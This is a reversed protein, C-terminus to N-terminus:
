EDRASEQSVIQIRGLIKSTPIAGLSRSDISFPVNDGLVYVHNEPVTMPYPSRDDERRLRYEVQRGLRLETLTVRGGETRIALPCRQAVPLDPAPVGDCYRLQFRGSKKLLTSALVPADRSWFAILIRIPKQIQAKGSVSLRDVESLQRAIGANYQYDDFVGSPRNHDHVNRHRYLLWPSDGQDCIWVGNSERRWGPVESVDSWRSHERLRDDDVLLEPPPDSVLARAIRDEIREGNVLLHEGAVSVEDGECAVVRKIRTSGSWRIAVLEGQLKQAGLDV